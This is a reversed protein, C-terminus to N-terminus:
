WASKFPVAFYSDYETEISSTSPFNTANKGGSECSYQKARGIFMVVLTQLTCLHCHTTAEKCWGETVHMAYTRSKMKKKTRQNNKKKKRKKKNKKNKNKNKNKNKKKKKWGDQFLGMESPGFRLPCCAEGITRRM